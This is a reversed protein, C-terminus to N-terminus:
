EWIEIETYKERGGDREKECRMNVHGVMHVM